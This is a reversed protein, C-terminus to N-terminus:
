RIAEHIANLIEAALAASRYVDDSHHGDKPWHLETGGRYLRVEANAPRGEEWKAGVWWLDQAQGEGEYMLYFGYYPSTTRRLSWNGSTVGRRAADIHVSLSSLFSYMENWGIDRGKGDVYAQFDRSLTERQISDQYGIRSRDIEDFIDALNAVAVSRSSDKRLANAIDSWSVTSGAYDGHRAGSELDHSRCVLYNIKDVSELQNATLNAHVKLEVHVSDANGEVIELDARWGTDEKNREILVLPKSFEKGFLEAVNPSVMIAVRLFQQATRESRCDRASLDSFQPM